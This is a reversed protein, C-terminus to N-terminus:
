CLIETASNMALIYTKCSADDNEDILKVDKPDMRPYIQRIAKQLVRELRKEDFREEHGIGQKEGFIERGLEKYLEICKKIPMRLRGLM